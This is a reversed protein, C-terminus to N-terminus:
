AQDYSHQDGGYKAPIAIRCALGGAEADPTRPILPSYLFSQTQGPEMAAVDTIGSSNVARM